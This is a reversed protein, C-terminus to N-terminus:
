CTATPTRSARRLRARLTALPSLARVRALQHGIDDAARDLRHTLTRRARDRLEAEAGVASSGAPAPRGLAPRTAAHRTATSAPWGTRVTRAGARAAPRVRATEEAVDPVVMKAADTPTRPACTPSWTSSRPTPSTGSRASWRPARRPSRGSWGRTASRCCTRSPAAAAPSWSSTSRRTATSRAAAGRHGRPRRRHGAGRRLAVTFRVAPWRRRADELVDREAASDTRPSWGSPARCSRCRGSASAARVPGRRRAAAAAARAPGAARRARGAPDRDALLSLTGRSAYYSPQAHM